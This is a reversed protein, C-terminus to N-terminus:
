FPPFIFHFWCLCYQWGLIITANGSPDFGSSLWFRTTSCLEVRPRNLGVFAKFISRRLLITCRKKPTVLVRKCILRSCLNM